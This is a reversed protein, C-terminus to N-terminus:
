APRWSGYFRRRRELERAYIGIVQVMESLSLECFSYGADQEVPLGLLARRQPCTFGNWWRRIDDRTM